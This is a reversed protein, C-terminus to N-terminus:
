AKVEDATASEPPSMVIARTDLIPHEGVDSM